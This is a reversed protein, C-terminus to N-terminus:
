VSINGYLFFEKDMLSYILFPLCLEDSIKMDFPTPRCSTRPHSHFICVTNYEIILRNDIIFFDFKNDSLNKAPLFYFQDEIKHIIGCSEELPNSLAYAEIEKLIKENFDVRSMISKQVLFVEM